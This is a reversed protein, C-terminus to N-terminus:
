KRYDVYSMDRLTPTKRTAARTVIELKNKYTYTKLHLSWVMEVHELNPIVIPTINVTDEDTYVFARKMNTVLEQIKHINEKM